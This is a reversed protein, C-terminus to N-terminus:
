SDSLEYYQAVEGYDFDLYTGAYTHYAMTDELPPRRKDNEREDISYYVV